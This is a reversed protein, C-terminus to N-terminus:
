KEHDTLLFKRQIPHFVAPFQTLLSYFLLVLFCLCIAMFVSKISFLFFTVIFLVSLYPKLQPTNVNLLYFFPFLLLVGYHSLTAPYIIFVFLLLSSWVAMGSNKKSLKRVIYSSIALFTLSLFGFILPYMLNSRLLVAKLSQNIPESYVYAPLRSTPNHLIYTLFPEIGYVMVTIGALVVSTVIFSIIPKWNKFYIFAVVFIIMFPKLIVALALIIGSVPKDKYQYMLLLFFLLIFNTQSCLITEKLPFYLLVMSAAFLLGNLKETKLFLNYILYICGFLFGTQIITWLTLATKFSFASLPLFYFITQPPYWFGVNVIEETFEKSATFPLQMTNFVTHFDQPSYFNYGNAAVKGFLYFVAFDWEAPNDIRFRILLFLKLTAIIGVGAYVVWIFWNSTFTKAKILYFCLASIVAFLSLVMGKEM